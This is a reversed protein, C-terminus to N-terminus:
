LQARDWLVSLGNLDDSWLKPNLLEFNDKPSGGKPRTGPKAIRFGFNDERQRWGGVPRLGVGEVSVAQWRSLCLKMSTGRKGVQKGSFTRSM